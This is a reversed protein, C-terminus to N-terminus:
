LKGSKNWKMSSRRKRKLGEKGRGGGERGGESSKDMRTEEVRVVEMLLM